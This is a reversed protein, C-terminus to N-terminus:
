VDYSTMYSLARTKWTRKIVHRGSDLMGQRATCREFRMPEPIEQVSARASAAAEMAAEAEAVAV